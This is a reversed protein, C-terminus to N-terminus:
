CDKQGPSGLHSPHSPLRTTLTSSQVWACFPGPEFRLWSATSYCDYAFQECGNHRQEGLLLIPLLGRLPQLPLQLGPLLLPLRGGPIHSVDGAPQSGLVLILESVRHETISYPSGKGKKGLHARLLFTFGIFRVTVTCDLSCCTFVRDFRSQRYVTSNVVFALVIEWLM